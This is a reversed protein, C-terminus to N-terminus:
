EKKRKLKKETVPGLHHAAAISKDIESKLQPHPLCIHMETGNIFM